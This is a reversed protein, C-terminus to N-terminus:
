TLTQKYQDSRKERGEKGLGRLAGPSPSYLIRVQYPRGDITIAQKKKDTKDISHWTSFIANVQKKVFESTYILTNINPNQKLLQALDKHKINSLNRDEASNNKHVCTDIVDTIGLGHKELLSKRQDVAKRTNKYELKEEFVDELLEWFYNDRSGYYFNVDNEYLEQPKKCFRPPPITGIVLRTANSPIFPLYPHKSPM